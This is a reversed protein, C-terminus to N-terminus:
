PLTVIVIKGEQTILSTQIDGVFKTGAPNFSGLGAWVASSKTQTTNKTNFCILRKKDSGDPNTMWGDTGSSVGTNTMWVIKSGDPKYFGHENYDKDTLKTVNNGTTDMTYIHQDWISPKNMSSCFIIKSDDPSFGYSEFFNNAVPEFTRINTVVPVSDSIGFAFDAM